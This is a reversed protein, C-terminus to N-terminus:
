VNKSVLLYGFVLMPIGIGLFFLAAVIEFPNHTTELIGLSRLFLQFGFLSPLIGIVILLVGASEKPSGKDESSRSELTLM